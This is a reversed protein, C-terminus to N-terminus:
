YYRGSIDAFIYDFAKYYYEALDKIEEESRWDNPDSKIEKLMKNNSWYFQFTTEEGNRKEQSRAYVVPDERMDDSKNMEFVFEQQMTFDGAKFNRLILYPKNNVQLAGDEASTHDEYYYITVEDRIDQGAYGKEDRLVISVNKRQHDEKGDMGMREHVMNRYENIEQVKKNTNQAQVSCFALACVITLLLHKMDNLKKNAFILMFPCLHM